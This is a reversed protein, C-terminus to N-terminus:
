LAYAAVSAVAVVAASVTAVVGASKPAATTPTPTKVTTSSAKSGSGSGKSTAAPAPTTGVTVAAKSGASSGKSSGSSSDCASVVKEFYVNLPTDVGDINLTCTPFTKKKAAVVLNSCKSCIDSAQQATPSTSPPLFSYNTAESCAGADKIIDSFINVLETPVCQTANATSVAMAAAALLAFTKM